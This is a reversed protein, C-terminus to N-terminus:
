PCVHYGVGGLLSVLRDPEHSQSVPFFRIWTGLIIGWM